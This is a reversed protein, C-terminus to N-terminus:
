GTIENLGLSGDMYGEQQITHLCILPASLVIFAMITRYHFNYGSISIIVSNYTSRDFWTIM